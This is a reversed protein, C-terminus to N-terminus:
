NARLVLPLRTQNSKQEPGFQDAENVKTFEKFDRCSIRVFAITSRLEAEALCIRM